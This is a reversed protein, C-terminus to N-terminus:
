RNADLGEGSSSWSILSWLIKKHTNCKLNWWRFNLLFLNKGNIQENMVSVDMQQPTQSTGVKEKAARPPQTRTPKSPMDTPVSYSGPCLDTKRSLKFWIISFTDKKVCHNNKYYNETRVESWQVKISIKAIIATNEFNWMNELGGSCFVVAM